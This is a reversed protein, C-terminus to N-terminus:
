AGLLRQKQTAFEEDTLVGAARLDALKKLEDAVSGTAAAQASSAVSQSHSAMRKVDARRILVSITEHWHEADKRITVYVPESRSRESTLFPIVISPQRADNVIIKLEIRTVKTSSTGVTKGSLGGVVFGLPGAVLTGVTAGIVQSGRSTRTTTVSSGDEVIESSVLDEFGFIRPESVLYDSYFCVKERKEDILLAPTPGSIIVPLAGRILKQSRAFGSEELKALGADRAAEKQRAQAGLIRSVPIALGALFLSVALLTQPLDFETKAPSQTRLFFVVGAIMLGAALLELRNRAFFSRNSSDM